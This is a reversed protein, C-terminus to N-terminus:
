VITNHNPLELKTEECLICLAGRSICRKPSRRVGCDVCLRLVGEGKCMHWVCPIIYCLITGMNHTNRTRHKPCLHSYSSFRCKVIAYSMARRSVAGHLAGLTCSQVRNLGCKLFKISFFFSIVLFFYSYTHEIKQLHINKSCPMGALPDTNKM